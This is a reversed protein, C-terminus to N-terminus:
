SIVDTVPFTVQGLEPVKVTMKIAHEGPELAGPVSLKLTAGYGVYLSSSWSLSTVDRVNGKLNVTVGDLPKEVDDVTLKAVGSISGSDIQNKIEFVFGSGENKLSGKVYMRKLASASMGYYM